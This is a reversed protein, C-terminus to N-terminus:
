SACRIGGAAEAAERRTRRGRNDVEGRQQERAKIRAVLNRAAQLIAKTRLLFGHGAAGRPRYSGRISLPVPYPLDPSLRAHAHAHM